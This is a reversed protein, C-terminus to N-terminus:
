ADFCEVNLTVALILIVIHTHDSTLLLHSLHNLYEGSAHQNLMNLYRRSFILVHKFCLLFMALLHEVYAVFNLGKPVALLCM